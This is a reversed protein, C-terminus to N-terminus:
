ILEPFAQFIGHTRNKLRFCVGRGIGLDNSVTDASIGNDMLAIANKYANDLLFYFDKLTNYM